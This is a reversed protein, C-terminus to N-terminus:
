GSGPDFRAKLVASRVFQSEGNCAVLDVHVVELRRNEVQQAEVM